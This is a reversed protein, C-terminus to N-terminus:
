FVHHQPYTIKPGAQQDMPLQMLEAFRELEPDELETCPSTGVEKVFPILQMLEYWNHLYNYIDKLILM